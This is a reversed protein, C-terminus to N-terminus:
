EPIANRGLFDKRCKSFQECSERDCRCVVRAMGDKLVVGFPYDSEDEGRSCPKDKNFMEVQWNELDFSKLYQECIEDGLNYGTLFRVMKKLAKRGRIYKRFEQDEVTRSNKVPYINSVISINSLLEKKM